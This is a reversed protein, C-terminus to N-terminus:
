VNADDEKSLDNMGNGYEATIRFERAVSFHAPYGELPQRGTKM